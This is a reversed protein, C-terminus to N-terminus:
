LADNQLNSQLKRLILNLFIIKKKPWNQWHSWLSLQYIIAKIYNEKNIMKMISEYELVSTDLPLFVGSQDTLRWFLLKENSFCAQTLYM